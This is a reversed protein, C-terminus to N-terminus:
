GVVSQISERGTCDDIPFLGAHTDPAAIPDSQLIRQVGLVEVM